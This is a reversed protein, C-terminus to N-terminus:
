VHTYLYGDLGKYSTETSARTGERALLRTGALGRDDRASAAAFAAAIEDIKERGKREERGDVGRGKAGQARGERAGRGDELTGPIRM